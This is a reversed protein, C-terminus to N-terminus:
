RVTGGEVNISKVTTMTTSGEKFLFEATAKGMRSFAGKKNQVM